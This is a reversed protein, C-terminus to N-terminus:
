PAETVDELLEDTVVPTAPLEEPRVTRTADLRDAEDGRWDWWNDSVDRYNGLPDYLAGGDLGLDEAEAQGMANLLQFGNVYANREATVLDVQANLLEQEADLVFLVSRNGISRELRAGELALEAADVAVENAEITRLSAEYRALAGAANAIVARETAVLQEFAQGEIARARAIQASPLGGQFIPLRVSVGAATSTASRPNSVGTFPNGGVDGALTNLYQGNANASVTPLRSARTARVDYGSAEVQRASAILDPNDALAIRVAETPTDPLPPLPPPPALDGPEDGIVRRYNEESSALTGEATALRARALQLRSESQAVDTRTTDGIEFRDSTAQLNTDLVAVQNENLTVIARDRMVDMYATVAEVFIDGEVARLTARGAEVRTDAARIDNRVAGGQFLPYDVDVRGNLFPGQSTRQFVGSQSIDRTLAVTGTVRPRGGTRAIEVLADSAKLAERQGTLTPNTFYAQRLAEGLTDRDDSPDPAQALIRQTEVPQAGAPQVLALAMLGAAITTTM